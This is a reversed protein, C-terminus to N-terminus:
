ILNKFDNELVSFDIPQNMEFHDATFFYPLVKGNQADRLRYLRGEIIVEIGCIVFSKGCWEEMPQIFCAGPTLIRNFADVPFECTMDEWSRVKVTDGSRLFKEDHKM